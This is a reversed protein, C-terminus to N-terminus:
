AVTSKAAVRMSRYKKIGLGAGAVLLLSLGGDLPVNNGGTTNVPTGGGIGIGVGGVPTTVNVDIGTTGTSGTVGIGTGLLGGNGFLGGTPGNTASAAMPALTLLAIALMNSSKKVLTIISSTVTLKKM